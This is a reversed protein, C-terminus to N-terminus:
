KSYALVSLGVVALKSEMRVSEFSRGIDVRLCYNGSLNCVEYRALSLENSPYAFKVLTARVEEPFRRIPITNQKILKQGSAKFELV